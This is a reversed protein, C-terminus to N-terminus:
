TVKLSCFVPIFVLRSINVIMEKDQWAQLQFRQPFGGNFGEICTISLTVLEVDQEISNTSIINELIGPQQAVVTCNFPPDPPGAAVLTIKCPEKQTGVSNAARCLITGFDSLHFLTLTLYSTLGKKTVKVPPMIPKEEGDDMQKTWSFAIPDAPDAEIYCPITISEGRSAGFNRHLSNGEVSKACVPADSLSIGFLKKSYM